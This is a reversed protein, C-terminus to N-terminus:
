GEAQELCGADIKELLRVTAAYCNELGEANLNDYSDRRTHYYDELKHNLGTVAVARFGGRTFAASDTAGGLPPVWDPRCPIDLEAAAACFLRSLARDTRVTGNLDRENTMLFRPDHITDFSYIYTPVDDYDGRHAKSWAKAGRLGAEESGTLIIGVETDELELGEEEMAKLLAIGMFCGSLNDNAGDVVRKKDWLFALGVWFPIFLLGIWAMVRVWGGAGCLASVALFCYYVAGLIAMVVHAEFAVGGFRYNVPWEWAADLHGNFFVRRKPRGGCRRVATVNTGQLTPFFPETVRRYLVFQFIFLMLAAMGFILGLWPALFFTGACLLCLAATFYLHGYFAGPQEAFSEVRVEACGCEDRLVGALYEGALREGASGPARKPMDRCIHTIEKIMYGVSDRSGSILKAFKERKDMTQAVIM